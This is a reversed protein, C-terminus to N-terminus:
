KTRWHIYVSRYTWGSISVWYVAVSVTSIGYMANITIIMIRQFWFHLLNHIFTNRALYGNQSIVIKQSIVIVEKEGEYQLFADSTSAKLREFMHKPNRSTYMENHFSLQPYINRQSLACSLYFAFGHKLRGAPLWKIRLSHHVLIGTAISPGPRIKLFHPTSFISITPHSTINSM